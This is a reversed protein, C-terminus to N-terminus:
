SLSLNKAHCYRQALELVEDGDDVLAGEGPRGFQETHALRTQRMLDQGQFAFEAPRQEFAERALDPEGRGAAGRQRVGARAQRVRLAGAAGGAAGGAHLRTFQVHAGEVRDAGPDQGHGQAGPSATVGLELHVEDLEGM